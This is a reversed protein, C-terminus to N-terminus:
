AGAATVGGAARPVGGRLLRVLMVILALEVVKDVVGAASWAEPTGAAPGFFPIGVTRTIVYLVILFANGIVGAWLMAREVQPATAPNATRWPVLLLLVAYFMQAISAFLFFVGYGWWEQFHSEVLL